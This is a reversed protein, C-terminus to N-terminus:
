RITIFENSALLAHCVAAWARVEPSPLEDQPDPVAAFIEMLQPIAREVDDCEIATPTRGLVLRYIAATTEATDDSRATVDKSRLIREALTESTQQLLPSNMMFLAQTPVTTSTRDGHVVSADSFDFLHFGDYLNNRVVPLYLSRVPHDYTTTDKSTHDFFFARNEVHLLSGGMRRDLLGSVMLLSDRLSEAELRLLPRRWLLQNGPDVESARAQQESSIRYTSSLMILRHLRKLSSGHEAFDRALWDLLEPHTPETGLRGFNDTSEVIGRGFHWRWVRNVIVRWTLPNERDTIWQALQLRGSQDAPIEPRTATTIWHPFRRPVVDGLSLYSGRFHVALDTPKGEAVGMATDVAPPAKELESVAARLETLRAKTEEPYHPEAPDPFAAAEGLHSRLENNAQAVFENVASKTSALREDYQRRAALQDATAIEHEHWKAITKFSDMTLTSKFVGALSYYDSTLIPDFKHDHCRACGFTLGLFSRGLTDLQEDIIDMEMKTKDAEALVKPGLALFGTAVLQSHQTVEDDASLLDGAIQQQVFQDYALDDNLSAVVWDRYRWANGHAVNEDLGNSDAYRAVDLWHRGWREGYAPSALLREILDAYARPSDDAVFQEVEAAIPPLGTLDLTARRVLTRRDAEANPELGAAELRQLIFQDIPTSVWSANRVAPPTPRSMPSLSWLPESTAATAARHMRERNSADPHAAGRQIWATLDAIQSDSLKNDPPMQLTPDDHHVAVLLLSTQPKGPQLASGANGGAALGEWTDLRLGAEQEEDGHCQYCHEALLPRIKTEFFTIEREDAGSSSIANPEDGRVTPSVLGVFIVVAGCWIARCTVTVRTLRVVVHQVLTQRLFASSHRLV